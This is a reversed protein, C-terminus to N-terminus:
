VAYKRQRMLGYRDLNKYIDSIIAEDLGNDICNSDIFDITDNHLIFDVSVRKEALLDNVSLSKDHRILDLLIRTQGKIVAKEDKVFAVIQKNLITDLYETFFWNINKDKKSHICVFEKILGFLENRLIDDFMIRGTYIFNLKVEPLVKEKSMLLCAHKECEEKNQFLEGEMRTNYEKLLSQIRTYKNYDHMTLFSIIKEGPLGLKIMIYMLESFYTAGSVLHLFLGHTRGTKFDEFSLSDTAVVIEETETVNTGEYCGYTRESLRFMTKLRYRERSKRTALNTGNILRLNYCYVSDVGSLILEELGGIYTELTEYPFGMIMESSTLIKKEKAWQLYKEFKDYKINTRELTKIVEKNLSQFSMGFENIPAMIEVIRLVYDTVIKATYVHIRSPYKDEHFSKMIFEAIKVDREGYIGFNDDTIFLFTDKAKRKIYNFEEFVREIEFNKINSWISNGAVCFTCGYSCGRMTQMLPYYNDSLFSDLEGTLYPSPIDSVKPMIYPGRLLSGDSAILACGDIREDLVLKGNRSYHDVLNIISLEGENPICVDYYPHMQMFRQLECDDDWISAGGAVILTKKSIEKIKKAIFGSLTESWLYISFGVMDPSKKRVSQLLRNPDRFITVEMGSFQKKISASLYGAALPVTNPSRGSGTHCLDALYIIM